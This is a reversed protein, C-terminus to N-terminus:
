HPFGTDENGGSVLSSMRVLAKWKGGEEDIPLLLM